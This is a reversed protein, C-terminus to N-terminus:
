LRPDLVYLRLFRGLLFVDFGRGPLRMDRERRLQVTEPLM